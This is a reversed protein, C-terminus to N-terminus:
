MGQGRGAGAGTGAGIQCQGLVTLSQRCKIDGGVWRGCGMAAMDWEIRWGGGWRGMEAPGVKGVDMTRGQSVSYMWHPAATPM